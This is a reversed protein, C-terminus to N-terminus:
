TLRQIKPELGSKELSTRDVGTALKFELWRKNFLGNNLRLLHEKLEANIRYDKGFVGDILRNGWPVLRLCRPLLPSPAM